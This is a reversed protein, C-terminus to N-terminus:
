RGPALTGPAVGGQGHSHTGSSAAQELWGPAGAEFWASLVSSGRGRQRWSWRPSSAVLFQSNSDAGCGMTRAGAGRGEGPFSPPPVTARCLRDWMWGGECHTVWPHVDRETCGQQLVQLPISNGPCAPSGSSSLTVSGVCGGATAPAGDSLAPRAPPVCCMPAQGGLQAHGNRCPAVVLIRMPFGAGAAQQQGPGASGSGALEGTRVALLGPARRCGRARVQSSGSSGSSKRM